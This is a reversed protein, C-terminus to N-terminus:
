ITLNNDAVVRLARWHNRHWRYLPKDDPLLLIYEGDVGCCKQAESLTTFPGETNGFREEEKIYIGISYAMERKMPTLPQACYGCFNATEDWTFRCCTRRTRMEDTYDKVEQYPM